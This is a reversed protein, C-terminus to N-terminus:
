WSQMICHARPLAIRKDRHEVRFPERINRRVRRTELALSAFAASNYYSVIAASITEPITRSFGIEDRKGHLAAKYGRNFEPSSPEGLLPV